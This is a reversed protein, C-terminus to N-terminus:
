RVFGIFENGRDSFERVMSCVLGFSMGSHNQGEITKKAEDLSGGDNLIKVIDLCCGLEMGHYLDNLRIPVIRDWLEWKDETLVERGKIKWEESLSPINEIFERERREHDERWKRQSEDFESKTKGTIAEYAGDMTVTDSYLMVGNFEGCVLIGSERYELLKRVASGITSGATFDIKLYQKNM